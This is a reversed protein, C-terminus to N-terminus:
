EKKLIGKLSSGEASGIDSACKDDRGGRNGRTGAFFSLQNQGKKIFISWAERILLSRSIFNWAHMHVHVDLLVFEWLQQSASPYYVSTDLM